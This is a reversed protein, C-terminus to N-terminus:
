AAPQELPVTPWAEQQAVEEDDPEITDIDDVFEDFSRTEAGTRRLANWALFMTHELKPSDGMTALAVNPFKREFAVFDGLKPEPVEVSRGDSFIVNM